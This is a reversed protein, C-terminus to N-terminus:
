VRHHLGRESRVCTDCGKSKCHKGSNIPCQVRKTSNVLTTPLKLLINLTGSRLVPVTRSQKKMTCQPASPGGVRGQMAPAFRRNPSDAHRPRPNGM